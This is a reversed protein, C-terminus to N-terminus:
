GGGGGSWARVRARKRRVLRHQWGGAVPGVALDAQWWGGRHGPGLELTALAAALAGDRPFADSNLLLLARGRSAAAGRNCGVLFGDNSTSRLIRVGDLRALLAETEDSSANDVLVIELSPGQQALLARLCRLTMHAQNWLVVVVSIDPTAHFPAVLREDSALFDLLQQRARATFLAKEHTADGELTPARDGSPPVAAPRHEGAVEAHAKDDAAPKQFPVAQDASTGATAAAPGSHPQRHGKPVRLRDVARRPLQLTVTWWALKAGRRLAVRTRPFHTFLRRLPWTLQWATSHLLADRESVARAWEKELRRAYEKGDRVAIAAQDFETEVRRAYAAASVLEAEAKRCMHDAETLGAIAAHCEARLAETVRAAEIMKLDRAKIQAELDHAYAAAEVLAASRARRANELELERKSIQTELNRAYETAKAFDLDRAKIQAELNRAYEGAEALADAARQAEAHHEAEALGAQEALELERARLAAEASQLRLEIEALAQGGAQAMAALELDRAKIQAELDRAYGGAEALASDSAQTAKTFELDRAKIQAELNHAYEAAEALADAARQAEARAAPLDGLAVEIASSDIYLSDPVDEVPRDSAIALLYVPRPLGESAEFRDAGRREFALMKNRARRAPGETVLASGLIPRQGQLAVHAFAGSLLALLEARTLERVHYPNAAADAPSYVDREPSSVVFRGGPRLVRRVEALFIDHEYLHEITEFSVVADVCADPLPIRRADGELFRLNPEAYSASAHAVTAQDVDVGVVSRATQALFASGYGEGCAIDLVDLGRCLTRAVFYRHLHEIEVQPGAANTLREGTWALPVDPLTRKFIEGM